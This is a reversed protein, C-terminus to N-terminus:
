RTNATEIECLKLQGWLGIKDGQIIVVGTLGEIGQAYEIGAPIDGPQVILNGIATAAADALTASKAVAVVADARGFSLSPGVTGSSTCIGLPTDQGSFVLGIKGTLPSPGAYIGVVRERRSSLFIDGGNEIIMERSYALLERGVAEAIAGAVAAMPGVGTLQAARAMEKVIHPATEAVAIPQLATLFSPQREIYKGLVGRYKAVLRRAPRKLNTEARIFLETEKLTVYFPRLDGTDIWRHYTRPESMTATM